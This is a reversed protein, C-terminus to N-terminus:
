FASLAIQLVTFRMTDERFVRWQSSTVSTSPATTPSGTKLKKTLSSQTVLNSDLCKRSLSVKKVMALIFVKPAIKPQSAGNSLGVARTASDVIHGLSEM